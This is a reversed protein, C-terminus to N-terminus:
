PMPRLGRTALFDAVRNGDRYIHSSRVQRQSTMSRILAMHHRLDTSGLQGSSLLTILAASELEIWNHTSFEMAREVGRILAM